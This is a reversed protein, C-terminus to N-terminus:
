VQSYGLLNTCPEATPKDRTTILEVHIIHARASPTHRDPSTGAANPSWM